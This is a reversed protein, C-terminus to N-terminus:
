SVQGFSLPDLGAFSFKDVLHASLLGMKIFINLTCNKDVFSLTLPYKENLNDKNRTKQL